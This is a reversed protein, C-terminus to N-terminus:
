DEATMESVMTRFRERRESLDPGDGAEALTALRGSGDFPVFQASLTGAGFKATDFFREVAVEVTREGAEVEVVLHATCGELLFSTGSSGYGAGEDPYVGDVGIMCGWIDTNRDNGIVTGSYTISLFGKTPAIISTSLHIDSIVTDDDADASVRAIRGLDNADRGDVADANKATAAKVVESDALRRLFSAMHQRLVPQRPSFDTNAPPNWGLTVGADRLWLIDARHVNSGSVDGFQEVAGLALPTAVLLALAMGVVLRSRHGSM